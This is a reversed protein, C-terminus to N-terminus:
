MITTTSDFKKNKNYLKDLLQNLIEFNNKFNFKLQFLINSIILISSRKKTKKLKNLFLNLLEEERKIFFNQNEICDLISNGFIQLILIQIEEEEKEEEKIILDFM